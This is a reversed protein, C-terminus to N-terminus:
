KKPRAATWTLDGQATSLMGRLSGDGAAKGSIAIEDDSTAVNLEGNAYTGKVPLDQGRFNLLTGTVAEGKVTLDLGMAVDGHPSKVTLDWKGAVNPPQAAFLAVHAIFVTVFMPVFRRAHM